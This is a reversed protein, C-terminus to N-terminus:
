DDLFELFRAQLLKLPHGPFDVKCKRTPGKGLESLLSGDGFIKHRVRRGFTTSEPAPRFLTACFDEARTREDAGRERAFNLASSRRTSRDNSDLILLETEGPRQRAKAVCLFIGQDLEGLGIVGGRALRKHVEGTMGIVAALNAGLADVQAAMLALVDDEFHVALASEVDDLRDLNVAPASDVGHQSRLSALAIALQSDICLPRPGRSM